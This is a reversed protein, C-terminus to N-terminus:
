DCELEISRTGRFHFAIPFLTIRRTGASVSVSTPAPPEKRRQDAKSARTEGSEGRRGTHGVFGGRKSRGTWLSHNRGGSGRSPGQTAVIAVRLPPESSGLRVSRVVAPRRRLVGGIQRKEPHGKRMRDAATPCPPPSLRIASDLGELSRRGIFGTCTILHCYGWKPPLRPYDALKRKRRHASEGGCRPM